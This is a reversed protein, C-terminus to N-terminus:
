LRGARGTAGGRVARLLAVLIVAGIIAVILTGFFGFSANVFLGVIFGGLLAGVIGLLIDGLFGYGGGMLRGTIWGALGGAIIWGLFGGPSLAVAAFILGSWTAM